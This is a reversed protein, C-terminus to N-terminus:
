AATAAAAALLPSKVKVLFGGGGAAGGPRTSLPLPAAIKGGGEVWSHGGLAAAAPETFSSTPWNWSTRWGPPARCCVATSTTWKKSVVPGGTLALNRRRSGSFNAAALFSNKAISAAPTTRRELLGHAAGRCM